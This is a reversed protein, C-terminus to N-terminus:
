FEWETPLCLGHVHTSNKGISDIIDQRVTGTRPITKMETQTQPKHQGGREARTQTLTETERNNEM